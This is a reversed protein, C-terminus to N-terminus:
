FVGQRALALVDMTGAVALHLGAGWWISRTRLSLTGLTVGGLIAAMAEALPKGFHIMTYPVVMVFVAAYGLRWRLGHLMFGRFFFELAVFQAAYMVWWIAMFPWLREGEELRYFPYTALFTDSSSAAVLFPVSLLYLAVYIKWRAATGKKILGFERLPLGLWFVVVAVPLLVYAVIQVGTWVALQHLQAHQSTAFEYRARRAAGDLGIFEFLAPIWAVDKAYFNILVLAVTSTILVAVATRNITRAPSLSRYADSEADALRATETVYVRWARRLRGRVGLPRDGTLQM